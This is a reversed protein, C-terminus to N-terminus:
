NEKWTYVLFETRSDGLTEELVPRVDDWDLRGNGCGPRPMAVKAMKLTYCLGRLQECSHRILDLDAEEHWHYKVPFTMLRYQGFTHVINGRLRIRRGLRRQLHQFRTAAEHACGRGMVAWGDSRITGNTTIVTADVDRAAWLNGRVHKLTM